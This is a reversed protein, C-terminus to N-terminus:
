IAVKRPRGRRPLDADTKPRSAEALREKLWATEQSPEVLTRRGIKLFAPGHAYFTPRSIKYKECFEKVTVM